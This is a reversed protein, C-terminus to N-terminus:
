RVIPLEAWRTTYAPSLRNQRMQYGENMGQSALFVRGIGKQNIADITRMLADSCPKEKNQHFLDPQWSGAQYLGTLMIGGKKYHHGDKWVACLLEHATEALRRTDSVPEVLDMSARNSYFRRGDRHPCTRIFVTIRKAKQSEQRLKEAGRTVFGTIAERMSNFQVIDEAFSRSCLIQQRAPAELELDACPQGNLELVTRQVVVSFHKKIWSQDADALQLATKIGFHELQATYNRGIGWVEGVPMLHMLRRQRAQDTLDVVGGTAPYQKAAQNALKALTKSPAIGVCTTIGTWQRVTDKVHKGFDTLNTKHAMGTLDLFAEDISYVEVRPALMELTAMVRQSMDGYLAYNSSFVEVGEQELFRKVQFYPTGMKIGLAKAEASRAVICGDNNSLVVVPTNRLDPRFLKECSAYFNNCDVLAFVAKSM